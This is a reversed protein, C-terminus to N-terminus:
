IYKGAKSPPTTPLPRDTPATPPTVRRNQRIRHKDDLLARGLRKLRRSAEEDFEYDVAERASPNPYREAKKFTRLAIEQLFQKLNPINAERLIQNNRVFWPARFVQRLIKTQLVELRHFKTKSSEYSWVVSAYSITPRIITGYPLLKNKISM